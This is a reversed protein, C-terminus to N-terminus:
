CPPRVRVQPTRKRHHIQDAKRGLAVQFQPSDGRQGATVVLSLSKQAQETASQGPLNVPNYSAPLM